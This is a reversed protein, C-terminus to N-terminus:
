FGEKGDVFLYSHIPCVAEFRAEALPINEKIDVGFYLTIEVNTAGPPNVYVHAEFVFILLCCTLFILSHAKGERPELPPVGSHINM